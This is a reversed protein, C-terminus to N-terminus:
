TCHAGAKAPAMAAADRAKTRCLKAAASPKATLEADGVQPVLTYVVWRGDNSLSAASISKWLDWDAQTLSKKAPAQAALPAALVVLLCAARSPTPM